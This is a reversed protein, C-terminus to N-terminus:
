SSSNIADYLLQIELLSKFLTHFSATTPHLLPSYSSPLSFTLPIIWSFFLHSLCM